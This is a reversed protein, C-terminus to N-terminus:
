KDETPCWAETGCPAEERAIERVREVSLGKGKPHSDSELVDLRSYISTLDINTEKNSKHEQILQIIRTVDENTYYSARSDVMCKESAADRRQGFYGMGYVRRVSRQACYMTWGIHPNNNLFAQAADEGLVCEKDKFPWGISTSNTESSFGLGYYRFCSATTNGYGAIATSAAQRYVSTDGKVTIRDGEIDVEAGENIIDGLSNTSQSEVDGVTAAVGDVSSTSVSGSASFSKSYSDAAAKARADADSTSKNYLKNNNNNTINVRDPDDPPPEPNIGHALGATTLLLLVMFLKM